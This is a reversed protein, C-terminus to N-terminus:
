RRDRRLLWVATTALVLVTTAVALGTYLWAVGLGPANAVRVGSFSGVAEGIGTALAAFSFYAAHREPPGASGVLVDLAPMLLMEAFTVLVVGTFLWGVSRGTGLCAFAAAFCGFGLLCLARPTVRLRGALLTVPLQLAIILLGNVLFVTGLSRGGGLVEKAYLPLTAFLQTYLVFGLATLALPIRLDRDQALVSWQARLTGAATPGRNGPPRAVLVLCLAMANVLAASACFAAMGFRQQVAVGALPGLAMGLNVAVAQSAFGRARGEAPAAAAILKLAMANMGFGLGIVPLALALALPHGDTAALGGFAVTGLGLAVSIATGPRLRGLAPGAVIRMLRLSVVGETVLAAVTGASHRGQTLHLPLVTLLAWVACCALTWQALVAAGAARGAGRPRALVDTGM